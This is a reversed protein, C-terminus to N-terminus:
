CFIWTPSTTEVPATPHKLRRELLRWCKKIADKPEFNLYELQHINLKSRDDGSITIIPKRNEDPLQEIGFLVGTGLSQDGVIIADPYELEMLNLITDFGAQMSTARCHSTLDSNRILKDEEHAAKVGETIEINKMIGINGSILAIRQAGHSIFYRAARYGWRYWDLCCSDYSSQLENVIFKSALLIPIGAATIFQASVQSLAGSIIILDPNEARYVAGFRQQLEHNDAFTEIFLQYGTAGCRRSLGAILSNEYYTLPETGFIFFGIRRKVPITTGQNRGVFTGKRALRYVVNADLLIDLARRITVRSAGYRDALERESPLRGVLSGDDINQNILEAIHQYILKENNMFQYGKTNYVLYYWNLM